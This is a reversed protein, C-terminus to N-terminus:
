RHAASEHLRKVRQVTLIESLRAIYDDFGLFYNQLSPTSAYLYTKVDAAVAVRRPASAVIGYKNAFQCIQQHEPLLIYISQPFYVCAWRLSIFAWSSTVWPAIAHLINVFILSKDVHISYVINIKIGRGQFKSLFKVMWKWMQKYEAVYKSLTVPEVSHRGCNWLIEDRKVLQIPLFQLLSKARNCLYM